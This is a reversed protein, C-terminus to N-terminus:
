LSPNFWTRFGGKEKRTMGFIKDFESREFMRKTVIRTIRQEKKYTEDGCVYALFEKAYLTVFVGCDTSNAQKPIGKVKSSKNRAWGLNKSGKFDDTVKHGHKVKWARKLYEVVNKTL